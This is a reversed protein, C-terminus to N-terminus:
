SRTARLGDLIQAWQVASTRHTATDEHELARGVAAVFEREAARIMEERMVHRQEISSVRNVTDLTATM